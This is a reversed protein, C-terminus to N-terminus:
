RRQAGGTPPVAFSAELIALVERNLSWGHLRARQKLARHLRPPVNRITITSM